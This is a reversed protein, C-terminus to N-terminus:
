AAVEKWVKLFQHLILGTAGWITHSRWHYFHFRHRENRWEGQDERHISPNLLEDVPAQLILETERPSGVLEVERNIWGVFPTVRFNSITYIDGLRGLIRVAEPKIGVEEHTERLATSELDEGPDQHGGPFSIQNKHHEVESSRVTFVLRPPGGQILIPILVAAPKFSELPLTGAERDNLAKSM